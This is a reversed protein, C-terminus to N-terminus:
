GEPNDRAPALPARAIAVVGANGAEYVRVDEFGASTLHGSIANKSRRVLPWQLLHRYVADDQAAVLATVVVHGGAQIQSRAWALLSATVREPLYELLADLVIINQPVYKIRSRGLCLGALDDQVLRLKLDKHRARVSEDVEALTERTGDVVTLEGRVRGLYGVLEPLLAGGAANVVLIRLPPEAPIAELVLQVAQARRERFTRSMPLALLWEDLIEGLPGDGEPKGALLHAICAPEGCHGDRRDLALEGLHSRMLYPHMERALVQGAALADGESMRTMAEQMQQGFNHLATHLERAGQARDRRLAPEIEMLRRRLTEALARGEAAGNESGGALGSNGLTGAVANTVAARQREAILEAVVKYFGAALLPDQDLVRLLAHRDWRQCVAGDAARVDASRPTENLFAMEGVVTGRGLVDLIVAPQSRTDIVELEGEAVRYVDGGKEGRRILFQGRALRLTTAAALLRDRDREIFRDLFDM